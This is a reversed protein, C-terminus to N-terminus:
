FSEDNWLSICARHFSSLKQRRSRALTSNLDRSGITSRLELQLLWWRLVVLLWYPVGPQDVTAGVAALSTAIEMAVHGFEITNGHINDCRTAVAMSWRVSRGGCSSDLVQGYWCGHRYIVVSNSYERYIYNNTQCNIINYTLHHRVDQRKRLHTRWRWMAYQQTLILTTNHKVIIIRINRDISWVKCHITALDNTLSSHSRPWQLVRKSRADQFRHTALDCCDVTFYVIFLSIVPPHFRPLRYQYQGAMERKTSRGIM